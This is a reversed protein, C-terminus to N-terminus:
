ESYSTLMLVAMTIITISIVEEAVKENMKYNIKMLKRKPDGRKLAATNSVELSPPM